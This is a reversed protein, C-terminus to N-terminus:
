KRVYDVFAYAQAHKEDAPHEERLMEEWEEANLEPFFADAEAPIDDVLTLHVRKALGLTQKYLEGGGIIYVDETYDCQMLADELSRYCEANEYHLGEQRSLVINRRNPLAGKPLSEFTKRGMIITHGTTLAKFRKLDNPLRYLLENNLGIANNKAVAVIISVNDLTNM